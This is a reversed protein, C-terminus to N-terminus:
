DLKEIQICYDLFKMWNKIGPSPEDNKLEMHNCEITKSKM